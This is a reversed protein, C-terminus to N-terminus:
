EQNKMRAKMVLVKASEEYENEHEEEVLDIKRKMKILVRSLILKFHTVELNTEEKIADFIRPKYCCTGIPRSYFWWGRTCPNVQTLSPSICTTTTSQRDTFSVTASSSSLCSLISPFWSQEQCSSVNRRVSSIITTQLRTNVTTPFFLPFTTATTTTTTTSPFCYLLVTTATTTTTTSPFCYFHPPSPPFVISILLLLLLSFHSYFFQPLLIIFNHLLLFIFFSFSLPLYLM